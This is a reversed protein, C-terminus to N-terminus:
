KRIVEILKEQIKLAWENRYEEPIEKDVWVDDRQSAKSVPWLSIVQLTVTVLDNSIKKSDAARVLIEYMVGEISHILVARDHQDGVIHPATSSFTPKNHPDALSKSIKDVVDNLYERTLGREILAKTLTQRSQEAKERTNRSRIMEKTLDLLELDVRNDVREMYRALAHPHVSRPDHKDVRLAVSPKAGPTPNLTKLHQSIKDLRSKVGKPSPAGAREAMTPILELSRIFSPLSSARNSNRRIHQLIIDEGCHLVREALVAELRLRAQDRSSPNTVNESVIKESWKKINDKRAIEEEKSLAIDLHESGLAREASTVRIIMENKPYLRYDSETKVDKPLIKIEVEGDVDKLQTSDKIRIPKGAQEFWVTFKALDIQGGKYMLTSKSCRNSM